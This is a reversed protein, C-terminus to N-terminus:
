ARYGLAKLDDDSLGAAKARVAAERKTDIIIQSAVDERTPENLYLAGRPAFWNGDIEVMEMERVPGDSGQIYQKRALRRATAETTCVAIPYDYGRGETCDTNSFAVWITKKENM